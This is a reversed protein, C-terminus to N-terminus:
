LSSIRHVIRFLRQEAKWMALKKKRETQQSPLFHKIPCEDCKLQHTESSLNILKEYQYNNRDKNESSLISGVHELLVTHEPGLYTVYCTGLCTYAWGCM